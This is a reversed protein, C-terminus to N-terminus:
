ALDTGGLYSPLGWKAAHREYVMFGLLGAEYAARSADRNTDYRTGDLEHREVGDAGVTRSVRLTHKGDDAAAVSPSSMWASLSSTSMGWETHAVMAPGGDSHAPLADFPLQEVTYIRYRGDHWSYATGQLPPLTIPKM